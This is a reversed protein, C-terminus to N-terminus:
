DSIGFRECGNLIAAWMSLEQVAVIRATMTGKYTRMHAAEFVDSAQPFPVCVLTPYVARTAVDGNASHRVCGCLGAMTCHSHLSDVLQVTRWLLRFYLTYWYFVCTLYMRWDLDLRCLSWELSHIYRPWLPPLGGCVINNRAVCRIALVQKGASLFVIIQKLFSCAITFTASFDLIWRHEQRCDIPKV